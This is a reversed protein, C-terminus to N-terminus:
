KERFTRLVDSLPRDSEKGRGNVLKSWSVAFRVIKALDLTVLEGADVKLDRAAQDVVNYSAVLLEATAVRRASAGREGSENIYFKALSDAKALPDRITVLSRPLPKRPAASRPNSSECCCTPRGKQCLVETRGVRRM